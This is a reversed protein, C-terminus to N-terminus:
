EELVEMTQDVKNIVDHMIDVSMNILEQDTKTKYVGEEVSLTFNECKNKIIGLLNSLRHVLSSDLADRREIPEDSTIFPQTFDGGLMSYVMKELDKLSVPKNLYADAGLSLFREREQESDLTHGTIIVVKTGKDYERLAKLVEQGSLEHLALDLFILDPKSVKIIELADKGSATTNVMFGRRGLFSQFTATIDVEDDVILIKPNEKTM